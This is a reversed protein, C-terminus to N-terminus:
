ANVRLPCRVVFDIQVVYGDLHESKAEFRYGLKPLIVRDWLWFLGGLVSLGSALIPWKIAPITRPDAKAMNGVM